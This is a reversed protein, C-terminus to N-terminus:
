LFQIMAAAFNKVFEIRIDQSAFISHRVFAIEALCKAARSKISSCSRHNIVTTLIFFLVNLM